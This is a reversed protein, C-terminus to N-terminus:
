GSPLQNQKQTGGSTLSHGPTLNKFFYFCKLVSNSEFTGIFSNSNMNEDFVNAITQVILNEDSVIM